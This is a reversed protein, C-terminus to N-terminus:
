RRTYMHTHIYSEAVEIKFVNKKMFDVSELNKAFEAFEDKDIVGNNDTDMAAFAIKVFDPQYLISDSGATAKLLERMLNELEEFDIFGSQDYDYRLWIESIDQDSLHDADFQRWYEDEPMAQSQSIIYEISQMEILRSVTRDWAFIEDQVADEKTIGAYTFLTEPPREANVILKTKREYLTDILTILRRVQDREQLTLAPVDTIFITHFVSSLAIYDGAGLPKDCLDAFKFRAVSALEGSEPIDLTRGQISITRDKTIMNKVLRNFKKDVSERTEEVPSYYVKTYDDDAFEGILRYDVESDIDVIDCKSKLLPIFPLFLPRNLGNKYLDDPTRNSTAVVVAGKDFMVSFLRKMIIADSIHTVQFEDFCLLWAKELMCDAVRDVLDNGSKASNTDKSKSSKQSERMKKAAAATWATNTKEFKASETSFKHLKDHVEIMWEHFHVRDKNKVQVEEYFLDMLFSKGSGPGGFIYMGTPANKSSSSQVPDTSPKSGRSGGAISVGFLSSFMGDKKPPASKQAPTSTIPAPKYKEVTKQLIDLKQIVARQKPDDRKQGSKILEEYRALVSIRRVFFLPVARATSSVRIRHITMSM